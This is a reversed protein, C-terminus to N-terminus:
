TFHLHLHSLVLLYALLYAGMNNYMENPPPFLSLISLQLLILFFLSDNYTLECVNGHLDLHLLSPRSVLRLYIDLQLLRRGGCVVAFSTPGKKISCCLPQQAALYSWMRSASLSRAQDSRKELGSRLSSAMILPSSFLLLFQPFACAPSQRVHTDDLTTGFNAGNCHCRAEAVGGDLYKFDLVLDHNCLISQVKTSCTEGGPKGFHSNRTPPQLLSELGLHSWKLPKKSRGRSTSSVRRRRSRNTRKLGKLLVIGFSSPSHVARCVYSYM